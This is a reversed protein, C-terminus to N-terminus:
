FDEEVDVDVRDGSKIAAAKTILRIANITTGHKGIIRGIDSKAVEITLLVSGIDNRSEKINVKETDTVLRRVVYDVLGRYDPM